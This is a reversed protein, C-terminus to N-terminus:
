TAPCLVAFELAAGNLVLLGSSEGTNAHVPLRAGDRM